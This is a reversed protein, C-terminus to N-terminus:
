FIFLFLAATIAGVWGIMSLGGSIFLPAKEKLTLSAFSKASATHMLTGIAFSNVVLLAVFSMKLLFLPQALLAERMPWFMTLGTVILGALGISVIYHARMLLKPNLTETKGLIWSIAQKDAYLIGIIAVALSTLHFLVM